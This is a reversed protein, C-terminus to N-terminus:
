MTLCGKAEKAEKRVGATEQGYWVRCSAQVAAVSLVDMVANSRDRLLTLVHNGVNIFCISM